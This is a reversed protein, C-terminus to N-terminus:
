IVKKEWGDVLHGFDRPETVIKSEKCIECKGEHWTSIHQENLGRGYKNGCEICILRPYDM